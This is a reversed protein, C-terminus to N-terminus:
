SNSEMIDELTEQTNEYEYILTGLVNLYDRKDQSLKAKDLLADVVKQTAELQAESAIPRLPFTKLLELYNDNTALM